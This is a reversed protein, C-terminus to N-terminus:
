LVRAREECAANRVSRGCHACVLVILAALPWMGTWATVSVALLFVILIVAYYWRRIAVRSERMAATSM